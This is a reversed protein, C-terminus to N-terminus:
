AIRCECWKHFESLNSERQTHTYECKIGIPFVLILFLTAIVSRVQVFKGILFTEETIVQSYYTPNTTPIRMFWFIIMKKLSNLLMKICLATYILNLTLPSSLVFSSSTRINPQSNYATRFYCVFECIGRVFNVIHVLTQIRTHTHMHSSTFYEAIFLTWCHNLHFKWWQPTHSHFFSTLFKCLM